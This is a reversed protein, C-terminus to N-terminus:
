MVRHSTHGAAEPRIQYRLPQGSLYRRLEELMYRGMRRCEDGVSGAIHPTLFVNPLTYLPSGPAPPEPHTVDLLATLDPRQAMVVLMEDEAVVAGRATNLFTAGPKMAAFHSGRILRETEPLWPTHLSVVHARTFLDDLAVLEVGLAEAGEPTVFPDHALIQVDPLAARLRPIVIRGIAGLSILGVTSGYAGALHDTDTTRRYTGTAHLERQLRFVQKLALCIAGVTYEAVPIANAHAASTVILGRTYAEPAIMGGTAGAGYFFARLHPAAALFATDIKPGGWGSFVIEVDALLAPNETAVHRTQPPAVLDVLGAIEAQTDPGYIREFSNADLIYLAKPKAAM